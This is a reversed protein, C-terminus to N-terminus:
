HGAGKATFHLHLVLKVTRIHRARDYANPLQNARDAYGHIAQHIGHYKNMPQVTTNWTGHEVYHTM